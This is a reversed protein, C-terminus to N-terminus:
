GGGGGWDPRCTCDSPLQATTADRVQIVLRHKNTERQCLPPACLRALLVLEDRRSQVADQSNGAVDGLLLAKIHSHQHPEDRREACCCFSAARSEFLSEGARGERVQMKNEKGERVLTQTQENVQHLVAGPVAVTQYVHLVVEVVATQLVAQHLRSVWRLGVSCCCCCRLLRRRHRACSRSLSVHRDPGVDASSQRCQDLYSPLGALFEM